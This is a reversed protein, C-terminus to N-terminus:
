FDLTQGYKEKLLNIMGKIDESGHSAKSLTLPPSFHTPNRSKCINQTIGTLKKVQAMRAYAPALREQRRLQCEAEDMRSHNVDMCVHGMTDSLWFRYHSTMHTSQIMYDSLVWRMRPATISCTHHFGATSVAFCLLNFSQLIAKNKESKLELASISINAWTGRKKTLLM